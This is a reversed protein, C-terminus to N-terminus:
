DSCITFRYEVDLKKNQLTSAIEPPIPPLKAEMISKLCCDAFSQNSSNSLLQLSEVRGEQTVYFSITATGFSLLEMRHDVYYRWRSSIADSLTKKYRGLPTTEAAVCAPGKNSISGRIMSTRATEANNKAATSLHGIVPQDPAPVAAPEATTALAKEDHHTEEPNSLAPAAPASPHSNEGISHDANRFSLTDQERGQQTPLPDKGTAPLESAAATNEYSQFNAHEPAKDLPRDSSTDVVPPQQPLTSLDFVIEPPIALSAKKEQHHYLHLLTSGFLLILFLHIFLSSLFAFFQSAHKRFHSDSMANSQM